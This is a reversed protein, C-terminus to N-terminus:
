CLVGGPVAYELWPFGVPGIQAAAATLRAADLSTVSSAVQCLTSEGRFDVPGIQAAAATLWAAHPIYRFVGGPM